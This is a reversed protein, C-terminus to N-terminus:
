VVLDPDLEEALLEKLREKNDAIDAGFKENAIRIADKTTAKDMNFCHVFARVWMRLTKDDPEEGHKHNKILHFYHKKKKEVKAKRAVKRTTAKKTKKKPASKGSKIVGEPNLFDANPQALFDLLNDITDEKNLAKGTQDDIKLINFFDCLSRVQALIMKFAKKSYREEEREDEADLKKEDYGKPVKRLYGSFEFINALLEKKKLAAGKNGYLFKHAFLVEEHTHKEMSAVVSPFEKLKKGRGEIIKVSTTEGAMTFDEPEFAADASAKRKRKGRGREEDDTESDEEESEEDEEEKTAEEMKKEEEEKKKKSAATDAKTKKKPPM